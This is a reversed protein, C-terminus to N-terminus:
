LEIDGGPDTRRSQESIRATQASSVRRASKTASEDLEITLASRRGDSPRSHRVALVDGAKAGGPLLWAPITIMTGGDVEVSAVSEEISDVIWRYGQPRDDVLVDQRSNAM